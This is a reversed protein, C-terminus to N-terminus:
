CPLRNNPEPIKTVLCQYNVDQKAAMHVASEFAVAISSEFTDKMSTFKRNVEEVLVKPSAGSKIAEARISLSDLVMQHVLNFVVYNTLIMIEDDNHDVAEEDLRTFLPGILESGVKEAWEKSDLKKTKKKAM